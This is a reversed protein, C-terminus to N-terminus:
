GPAAPKVAHDASLLPVAQSLLEDRLVTEDADDFEFLGEVVNIASHARLRDVVEPEAGALLSAVRGRVTRLRPGIDPHSLVTLDAVVMSGVARHRLLTDAYGALLEARDAPPQAGGHADCLAEVDTLVPGILEALLDDKTRFHYYLAAKTFGMREAIERLSTKTYGQTAFLGLATAKIEKRRAGDRPV